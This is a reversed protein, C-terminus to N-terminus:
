NLLYEISLEESSKKILFEILELKVTLSINLKTIKDIFEKYKSLIENGLIIIEDGVEEGEIEFINLFAKKIKEDNNFIKGNEVSSEWTFVIDRYNIGGKNKLNSLSIILESSLFQFISKYMRFNSIRKM